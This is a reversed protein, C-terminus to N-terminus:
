EIATEIAASLRVHVVPPSHHRQTIIPRLANEEDCPEGDVSLELALEGAAVAAAVETPARALYAAVLRARTTKATVTLVVKNALRPDSSVVELAVRDNARTKKDRRKPQRAPRCARPKRICSRATPM